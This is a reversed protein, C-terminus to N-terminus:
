FKRIKEVESEIYQSRNLIEMYWKHDIPSFIKKIIKGGEDEYSEAVNLFLFEWIIAYYLHDFDSNIDEDEKNKHKLFVVAVYELFRMFLGGLSHNNYKKIMLNDPHEAGLVYERTLMIIKNSDEKKWLTGFVIQILPEETTYKFIKLLNQFIYYIHTTYARNWNAANKIKEKLQPINKEDKAQETWKDFQDCLDIMVKNKLGKCLKEIDEFLKIKLTKRFDNLTNTQELSLKDQDINKINEITEKYADFRSSISDTYTKVLLAQRINKVIEDFKVAIDSKIIELNMAAMDEDVKKELENPSIVINKNEVIEKINPNEDLINQVGQTIESGTIIDLKKSADTIAIIEKKTDRPSFTGKKHKEIIIETKKDIEQKIKEGDRPTLDTETIKSVIKVTGAIDPFLTALSEIQRIHNKIITAAKPQTYRLSLYLTRIISSEEKSIAANREAKTLLRDLEAKTSQYAYQLATISFINCSFFISYLLCFVFLKKM